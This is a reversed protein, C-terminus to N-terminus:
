SRDEEDILKALFLKLSNVRKRHQQQQQRQQNILRIVYFKMQMRAIKTGIKLGILYAFFMLLMIVISFIFFTQNTKSKDHKQNGTIFSKLDLLCQNENLSLVM